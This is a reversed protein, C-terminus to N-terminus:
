PCQRVVHLSDVAEADIGVVVVLQDGAAIVSAVSNPAQGLEM